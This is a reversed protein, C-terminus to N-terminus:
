NLVSYCTGAHQVTGSTLCFDVCKVGKKNVIKKIRKVSRGFLPQV